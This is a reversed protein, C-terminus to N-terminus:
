PVAARAPGATISERLMARVTTADDGERVRRAAAAVLGDILAARLEPHDVDLATLAEVLPAAMARHHQDIRRRQADTLTLDALSLFARHTTDTASDFAVCAFHLVREGPLRDGALAAHFRQQASEFAFDVVADFLDESSSFYQYVSSRAIGVAAGVAQPTLRAPGREALIRLGERLLSSRRMTHHEEVTAADIRPM